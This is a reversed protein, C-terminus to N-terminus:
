YIQASFCTHVQMLRCAHSFAKVYLPAESCCAAFGRLRQVSIPPRERLHLCVFAALRAFASLLCAFAALRAVACRDQLPCLRCAACSRCSVFAALRAIFRLSYLTAPPMGRLYCLCNCLRRSAACKRVRFCCAACSCWMSQRDYVYMCRLLRPSSTCAHSPLCTCACHLLSCKRGIICM